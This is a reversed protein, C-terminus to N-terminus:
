TKNFHTRFIHRPCSEGTSAAGRSGRQRQATQCGWRNEQAAFRSCKTSGFAPRCPKSPCALMTHNLTSLSWEVQGRTRKASPSLPSSSLITIKLRHSPPLALLRVVGVGATLFAKSNTMRVWSEKSEPCGYACDNYPAACSNVSCPRRDDRWFNFSRGPNYQLMSSADPYYLSGGFYFAGAHDWWMGTSHATNGDLTLSIENAPRFVLTRHPGLATALSPFAFGAWGQMSPILWHRFLTLLNFKRCASPSECVKGSVGSAANGVIYNRVNTIYFGSATVDAPLTLTSTQNYVNTTQAWGSPIDPGLTHVHAV